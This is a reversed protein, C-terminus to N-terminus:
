ESQIAVQAHIIDETYLETKNTNLHKIVALLGTTASIGVILASGLTVVKLAPTDAIGIVATMVYALVTWLVITFSIILASDCCFMTHIKSKM